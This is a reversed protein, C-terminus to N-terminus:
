TPPRKSLDPLRIVYDRSDNRSKTSCENCLGRPIGHECQGGHAKMVKGRAAQIALLVPNGAIAIQEASTLDRLRLENDFAMLHGCRICVSVSRGPTPRENDTMAFRRQNNHPWRGVENVASAADLMEGCNTCPSPATRM